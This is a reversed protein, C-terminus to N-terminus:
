EAFAVSRKLFTLRKMNYALNALAIKVRARELGITRVFLSMQDKQVAFVHEVHARISARTKNGQKVHKSM